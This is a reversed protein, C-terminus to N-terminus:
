FLLPSVYSTPIAPCGAWTGKLEKLERLERLDKKLLLRHEFAFKDNGAFVAVVLAPWDAPNDGM